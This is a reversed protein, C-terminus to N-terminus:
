MGENGTEVDITSWPSEKELEAGGRCIILVPNVVIIWCKLVENKITECSPLETESGHGTKKKFMGIHSCGCTICQVTVNTNNQVIQSKPPM